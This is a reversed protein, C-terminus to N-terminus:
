RPSMAYEHPPGWAQRLPESRPASGPYAGGEVGGGEGAAAAAPRMLASRRYSCAPQARGGAPHLRRPHALSVGQHVEESAPLHCRGRGERGEEERVPKASRSARHTGDQLEGVAKGSYVSAAGTPKVWKGPNHPDQGSSTAAAAQILGELSTTRRAAWARPHKPQGPGRQSGSATGALGPGTHPKRNRAGRM